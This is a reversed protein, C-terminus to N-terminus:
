RNYICSVVDMKSAKWAPIFGSIRVIFINVIGVLIFIGYNIDFVNVEDLYNNVFGNLPERILNIFIISFLIAIFGLIVNETNFLYRVNKRSFGLSRLIGIEKKRELVRVNTLIGVMLFSIIIAIVSFAVLIIGIITVFQKLLGIAEGMTDVYILKQNSSNYQDLKRIVKEKNDLNGVYIYVSTPFTNYGLYSLMENKGLDLNLVNYDSEIQNFVIESKSNIDVILDILSNDYYLFTDENIITKERVIGVITLEIESKDYLSGYNTEHIYLNGNLSYYNDNIIVKMKRGIIEQYSINNDIGFYGLLEEDVNNNSDVKLLVDFRSKINSGALIDFNNDIYKISPVEKLYKNDVVNHKDSIVPLSINYDFSLYEIEHINKIYDLYKDNIRNTHVYKDRHKVIIKEDGIEKENSLLEFDGNQVVIPFISVVDAELKNIENNFNNYLNIVTFIGVIGLSIAFSTVLTRGKKLWLNKFALNIIKHRYKKRKLLVAKENDINKVINNECKGDSLKIIKSAYNSVLHYDHSVVIVLKERAINALTEMVMKGNVSDLNGTPEDALIIQPDNVLTRAIAVRQKEGGSLKNVMVFRKEYINLKKLLNIIETKSIEKDLGLMVNDWVDMYDILNYDQFIMGVTGNRYDNLRNESLKSVCLDHLWVEGSDCKLNGGIINLLTSKGSGSAGFILVLGKNDFDLTVNDLITKKEKGIKYYKYINKLKLM